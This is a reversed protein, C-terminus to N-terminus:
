SPFGDLGDLTVRFEATIAATSDAYAAIAILLSANSRISRHGADNDHHRMNKASPPRKNPQRRTPPRRRRTRRQSTQYGSSHRTRLVISSSFMRTTRPTRFVSICDRLLRHTAIAITRRKHRAITAYILHLPSTCCVCQTELM